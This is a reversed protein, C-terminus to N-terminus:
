VSRINHRKRIGECGAAMAPTTLERGRINLPLLNVLFEDIGGARASGTAQKVARQVDYIDSPGLEIGEFAGAATDAFPDPIGRM